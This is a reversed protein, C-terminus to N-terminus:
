WPYEVHQIIGDKKRHIRAVADGILKLQFSPPSVPIRVPTRLRNKKRKRGTQLVKLQESCFAANM